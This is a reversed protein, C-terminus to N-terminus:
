SGYHGGTVQGGPTLSMDEGGYGEGAGGAMRTKLMAQFCIEAAVSLSQCIEEGGSDTEFVHCTYTPRGSDAPRSITIFAVLRKNEQHAAWFSINKLHFYARLSNNSPDELRVSDNTIILNCETMRFVNHIARAAMIHRITQMLVDLGKDRNVEMSGLFRVVYQQLFGPISSKSQEVRIQGAPESFPNIRRPPIDRQTPSAKTLSPPVEEGPSIMDFSIPTSPLMTDFPSPPPTSPVDKSGSRSRQGENTGKSNNQLSLPRIKSRTGSMSGSPSSGDSNVGPVSGSDESVISGRNSGSGASYESNINRITCIWEERDLTSMTQLHVSKKPDQINQIHFVFRRDDVDSPQVMCGELDIVLHGGIDSKAQSMLISGQIFFYQREWRHTLGSKLRIWLYGGIQHRKRNIVKPPMQLDPTPEPVYYYPNQTDLERVQERARECTVSMETMVGQVSTNIDSLYEETQRTFMQPGMKVFAMHAQLYGIMPELLGTTRKYQLLNLATYYNMATQQLKKRCAYLEDNMEICQKTEHERKKSVKSYKSLVGEHDHQNAKYLERMSMIEAIDSNMFRSLPHLVTDELSSSLTSHMTSVQDVNGAFQKLTSVLISDDRGLEFKWSEFEGLKTSLAQTASKLTNQCDVVNKCVDLLGKMYSSLQLADTEFLNLLSRAQPSDDHADELRLLQIGPM